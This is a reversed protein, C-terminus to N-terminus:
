SAIKQRVHGSFALNLQTTVWHFSAQLSEPLQEISDLVDLHYLSIYQGNLEFEPSAQKLYAGYHKYLALMDTSLLCYGLSRQTECLIALNILYSAVRLPAGARLDEGIYSPRVLTECVEALRHRTSQFSDPCIGLASQILLELPLPALPDHNIVIGTIAAYAGSDRHRLMFFHPSMQPGFEPTSLWERGEAQHVERQFGDLIQPLKHEPVKILQFRAQLNLDIKQM